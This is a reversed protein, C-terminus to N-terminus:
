GGVSGLYEGGGDICGRYERWVIWVYSQDESQNQVWTPKKEYNIKPHCSTQSEPALMQWETKSSDSLIPGATTCGSERCEEKDLDKSVHDYSNTTAINGGRVAIVASAKGINPQVIFGQRPYVSGWEDTLFTGVDDKGPIWSEPYFQESLGSRWQDADLQSQYYPVYPTAQGTLFGPFHFVALAPNGIVSVERFRTDSDSSDDNDFSGSKIQMGNHLVEFTKNGVLHDVVDMTQNIEFWPDKGYKPYTTIVVDPLYQDVKQTTVVSCGAGCVLWFCAGVIKYHTCSPLAELTNTVISPTTINDVALAVNANFFLLFSISMLLFLAKEKLAKLFSALRRLFSKIKM